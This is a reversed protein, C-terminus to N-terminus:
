SSIIYTFVIKSEPLTSIQHGFLCTTNSKTSMFGYLTQRHRRIQTPNCSINLRFLSKETNGFCFQM